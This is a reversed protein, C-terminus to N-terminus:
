DDQPQRQNPVTLPHTDEEAEDSPREMNLVTMPREATSAEGPNRATTEGNRQEVTTEESGPLPLLRTTPDTHPDPREAGVISSPPAAPATPLKIVQTREAPPEVTASTPQISRTTEGPPPYIAGTRRIIQTTEGPNRAIVQTKEGPEFDRAPRGLDFDDSPGEDAARVDETPQEGGVTQEDGRLDETPPEAQARTVEGGSPLRLLQTKEEGDADVGAFAVAAVTTEDDDEEGVVVAQTVVPETVAEAPEEDPAGVAQTIVPETVAEAPEEDPAGVAQTIVPETVAEAPEEDPTGAETVVAETPGEEIAETAEGPEEEATSGNPAGGVPWAPLATTAGDSSVAFSATSAETTSLLTTAEDDKAAPPTSLLTTAEDDKEVLPTSVPPTSVPPTSVPPTSVPPTSVPPTSVPPTSVPPTSVPPRTVPPRTLLTTAESDQDARARATPLLTTAEDGNDPLPVREAATRRVGPTTLIETDAVSIPIGAVAAAGRARGLPGILPLVPAEYKAWRRASLGTCIMPVALLLALGYGPLSLDFGNRSVNPAWVGAYSSPAALAWLGVGLFAWGGLVPGAPSIPAFILIAYAAGALLLPLRGTLDGTFGVGCLVWVAPALVLAYLISRLHRL